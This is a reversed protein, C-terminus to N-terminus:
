IFFELSELRVRRAFLRLHEPFQYFQISVLIRVFRRRRDYLHYVLRFHVPQLKIRFRRCRLECVSNRFIVTDSLILHDCPVARILYECEYEHRELAPGAPYVIRLYAVAKIRHVAIDEPSLAHFHRERLIKGYSRLVIVVRVSRDHDSIRIRRCPHCQREILDLRYKLM